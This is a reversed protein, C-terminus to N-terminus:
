VKLKGGFSNELKRIHWYSLLCSQRWKGSLLSLSRVVVAKVEPRCSEPGPLLVCSESVPPTSLAPRVATLRCLFTEQCPHHSRSFSKRGSTCSPSNGPKVFLCPSKLPESLWIQYFHGKPRLDKSSFKMLSHSAQRQTALLKLDHCGLVAVQLLARSHWNQWKKKVKHITFQKRGQHLANFLKQCRGHEM